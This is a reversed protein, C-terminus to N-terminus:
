TGLMYKQDGYELNNLFLNFKEIDFKKNTFFGITGIKDAWQNETIYGESMLTSSIDSAEIILEKTIENRSTIDRISTVFLVGIIMLILVAVLFDGYWFQAKRFSLLRQFMLFRQNKITKM